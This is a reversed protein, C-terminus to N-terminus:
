GLQCLTLLSSLHKVYVRLVVSTGVYIALSSYMFGVTVRTSGNCSNGKFHTVRAAVLNSRVQNNLFDIGYFVM